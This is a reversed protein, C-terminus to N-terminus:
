LDYVTFKRRLDYGADRIVSLSLGYLDDSTVTFDFLQRDQLSLRDRDSVRTVTKINGEDNIRSIIETGRKNAALVNVYQPLNFQMEKKIGLYACCIIRRIKANTYRRTKINDFLEGLNKSTKVAREIRYELGENVDAIEGIEEASMKRLSSLVAVTLKKFDSINSFDGGPVYDSVDGGERILKRIATASMYEGKAEFDNHGVGNRIVARPEIKSGLLELQTLYEIALINNSGETVNSNAAFSFADPYSLGKALYASLKDNFEPTKVLELFDAIESLPNETGFYLRDVCNLSDLIGVAGRSFTEATGLAYPLPLEIVLDAGNKVAEQARLYKDTIATEGRQVFNGSMICLTHTAGDEKIKSLFYKHGNHFPNFECVAASIIM